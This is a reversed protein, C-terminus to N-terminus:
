SSLAPTTQLSWLDPCCECVFVSMRVGQLLLLTMEVTFLGNLIMEEVADYIASM